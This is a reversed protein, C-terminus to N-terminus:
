FLKFLSFMIGLCFMNMHIKVQTEVIFPSMNGEMAAGLCLGRM